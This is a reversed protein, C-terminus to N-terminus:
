VPLRGSLSTACSSRVHNPTACAWSSDFGVRPGGAARSKCLDGSQDPAPLAAGCRVVRGGRLDPSCRALSASPSNLRQSALAVGSPLIGLQVDSSRNAM